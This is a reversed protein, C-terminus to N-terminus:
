KPYDLGELKENLMKDVEDLHNVMRQKEAIIKRAHAEGNEMLVTNEEELQKQKEYAAAIESKFMELKIKAEDAQKTLKRTCNENKKNKMTSKKEFM